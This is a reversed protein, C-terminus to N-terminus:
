NRKGIEEYIILDDRDERLARLNRKGNRSVPMSERIKIYDPRMYDPLTESLHRYIASLRADINETDDNFVIHAILKIKDSEHIDIVKCQSVTEEELIKDEIDFLYVIDGNERIFHDKVRGCVYVFGDSDVYGIDGTCGWTRGVDDTWFFEETARPNKFYEKMRAPSYVRLEGREGYKCEKNTEMNFASVIVDTMPYGAAGCKHHNYSDTTITSGLECMGYATLFRADSGHEKLFKNMAAEVRPLTKEGGSFPYRMNSLNVKKHEYKKAVYLWGSVSNLTIDPNYRKLDRAFNEGSFAPELIVTKSLCLPMLVSLVIGTSFWVPVVQLFKDGRLLPFDPNIYHRTTANIGDNTLVIGKSAGTTGTSYVMVLAHDKEYPADASPTAQTNIFEAWTIVCDRRKPKKSIGAFLRPLTPMSQNVPMIVTRKISTKPIVNEIKGYLKDLAILLESETENIRAICQEDTFLPNLMDAVAGIRCLALITYVTEPTASVYLIVKDNYKIGQAVLANKTKEIQEFIERFTIKRGYYIIAVDDLNTQNNNYINTYVSNGELNANSEQGQYYKLWPKDISPYGTHETGGGIKKPAEVTERQEKMDNM